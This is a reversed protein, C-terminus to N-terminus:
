ISKEYWNQKRTLLKFLQKKNLSMKANNSIFYCIRAAQGRAKYNRTVKYM